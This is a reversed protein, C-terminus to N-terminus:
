GDRMEPAVNRSLQAGGQDHAPALAVDLATVVAAVELEIVDVVVRFAPRRRPPVQMPEAVDVVLALGPTCPRARALDSANTAIPARFTPSVRSPTSSVFRSWGNNSPASAVFRSRM